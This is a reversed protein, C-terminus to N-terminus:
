CDKTYTHLFQEMTLIESTESGREKMEVGGSALSKDSVVVRMPIGILDSDAFKEGAQADRDDFLVEVHADTLRKYMVEAQKYYECAKDKGLVILHVSFPAVSEPWILGKDDAYKETIVGMLRTPGIGYSGMFVPQPSGHEDTYTYDIAKTFKTNLPFINGVECARVQELSNFDVSLKTANEETVVEKPLQSSNLVIKLQRVWPRQLKDNVKKQLEEIDKFFTKSASIDLGLIILRRQFVKHFLLPFIRQHSSLLLCSFM